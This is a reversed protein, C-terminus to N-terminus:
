DGGDRRPVPTTDGDKLVAPPPASAVASPQSASAFSKVAQTLENIASTDGYLLRWMARLMKDSSNMQTIISDIAERDKKDIGGPHIVTLYTPGGCNPEVEKVQEIVYAAIKCGQETTLGERYMRALLYEAYASGSGLSAYGTEKEAIGDPFITFISFDESKTGKWYIGVMLALSPERVADNALSLKSAREVVYRRNIETLADEALDAIDRPSTLLLSGQLKQELLEAARSIFPGEGSGAMVVRVSENEFLPHIKEFGLRKIQVGRSYTEQSDAALVVGDCCIIGVIITMPSEGQSDGITRHINDLLGSPKNQRNDFQSVVWPYNRETLFQKPPLNADPSNPRTRHAPAMM